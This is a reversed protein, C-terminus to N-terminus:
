KNMQQRKREYASPLPILVFAPSVKLFINEQVWGM